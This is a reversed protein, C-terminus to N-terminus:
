MGTRVLGDNGGSDCTIRGGGECTISCGQPTGPGGCNASGSCGSVSSCTMNDDMLSNKVVEVLETDATRLDTTDGADLQPAFATAFFLISLMLAGYLLRDTM